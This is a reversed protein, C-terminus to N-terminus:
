PPTHYPILSQTHTTHTCSVPAGNGALATGHHIGAEQCKSGKYFLILPPQQLHRGYRPALANTSDFNPVFFVTNAGLRCQGSTLTAHPLPPKLVPPCDMPLPALQKQM